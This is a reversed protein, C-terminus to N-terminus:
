WACGQAWVGRSATEPTRRPHWLPAQQPHEPGWSQGGGGPQLQPPPPRGPRGWLRVGCAKDQKVGKFQPTQAPRLRLTLCIHSGGDGWLRCGRCCGRRVVLVLGLRLGWCRWRGWVERPRKRPSCGLLLCARGRGVILGRSARLLFGNPDWTAPPRCGVRPRGPRPGQRRRTTLTPVAAPGGRFWGPSLTPPDLSPCCRGPRGPRGPHLKDGGSSVASALWAPASAMGAPPRPWQETRAGTDEGATESSALGRRQVM